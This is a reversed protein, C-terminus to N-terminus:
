GTPGSTPMDVIRPLADAIAGPVVVDALDDFGTDEANLIVM